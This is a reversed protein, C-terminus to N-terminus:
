ENYLEKFREFIYEDDIYLDSHDIENNNLIDDTDDFLSEYLKKYASDFGFRKM